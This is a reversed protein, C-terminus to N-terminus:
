EFPTCQLAPIYTTNHAFAIAPLFVEINKYTTDDCKCLMANLTHMLREVIANGRPNYGGTHIQRINLFKNM